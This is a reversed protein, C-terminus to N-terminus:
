QWSEFCHPYLTFIFRCLYRITTLCINANQSLSLRIHSQIFIRLHNQLKFPINSFHITVLFQIVKTMPLIKMTNFFLDHPSSFCFTENKQGAPLTFSNSM